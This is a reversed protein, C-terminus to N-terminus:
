HVSNGPDILLSSMRGGFSSVGDGGIHFTVPTTRFNVYDGGFPTVVQQGDAKFTGNCPGMWICGYSMAYNVKAAGIVNPFSASQLGANNDLQQLLTVGAPQTFDIQYNADPHSVIPAVNPKTAQLTTYVFISGYRDIPDVVLGHNKYVIGALDLTCALHGGNFVADGGNLGVNGIRKCTIKEVSTEVVEALDGDKWPGVKITLLGTFDQEFDFSLSWLYGWDSYAQVPRQPLALLSAFILVFVLRVIRHM